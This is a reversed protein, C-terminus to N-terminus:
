LILSPYVRADLGDRRTHCQTHRWTEVGPGAAEAYGVMLYSLSSFRHLRDSERRDRLRGPIIDHRVDPPHERRIDPDDLAAVQVPERGGLDTLQSWIGSLDPDHRPELCAPLGEEGM